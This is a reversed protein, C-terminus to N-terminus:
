ARRRWAVVVGATITSSGEQHVKVGLGEFRRLDFHSNSAARSVTPSFLRRSYHQGAARKLAESRTPYPAILNALASPARGIALGAAAIMEGAHPAVVGAGILRGREIVLKALGATDGEAVARDNGAFAFRQVEITRGAQKADTESMGVQALEPDTYTVHPLARYDLKAPLRFVIRRLIIGAHYGAAHTFRRPEIGRPDAIDGAAFVRRNTSRLGADTAIGHRSVAVGAADLGLGATRPVRGTAILLHSGAIRQGDDLVLAPGPEARVVKAGEVMCVGDERLAERVVAVLEPDDQPLISAAEILTVRCGLAAHAQAMEIGIPGGGLILLHEPRALGAFLTENTVFKVDAVGPIDPIAPASGAAVVIRRATLAWGEVDLTGPGTFRASARLVTAGFGAYRDASDVPAITDVARRVHARVADWDIEPEAVRVGLRAARRAARAAHAAALLAKSPVCGTNLCEGGMPGREILAASLGLHTAAYAVSLGASGAGIIALDFEPM